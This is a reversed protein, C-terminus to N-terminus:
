GVIECLCRQVERLENITVASLKEKVRTKSLARIEYICADSNKNLKDRQTIPYRYPIANAEVISSLPIVIITDLIENDDNNSIIIAPRYKGIEGGKAPNFDVLVIDGRYLAMM